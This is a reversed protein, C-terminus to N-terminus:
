SLLFFRFFLKSFSYINFKDQRVHAIAGRFAPLQYPQLNSDFSVQLIRLKKM